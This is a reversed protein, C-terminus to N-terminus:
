WIMGIDGMMDRQHEVIVDGMMDDWDQTERDRRGDYKDRRRRGDYCSPALLQNNQNVNCRGDYWTSM